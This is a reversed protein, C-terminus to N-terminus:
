KDIYEDIDEIKNQVYTRWYSEFDGKNVHQKWYIFVRARLRQAPSKVGAEAAENPIDGIAVEENPSFILWGEGQYSDALLAVEEGTLERTEFKMTWSRDAKPQFGTVQVPVKLLPKGM